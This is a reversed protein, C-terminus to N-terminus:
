YRNSWTNNLDGSSLVSLAKQKSKTDILTLYSAINENTFPFVSDYEGFITPNDMRMKRYVVNRFGDFCAKTYSDM